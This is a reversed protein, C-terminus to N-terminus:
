GPLVYKEKFLALILLLATDTAISAKRQANNTAM